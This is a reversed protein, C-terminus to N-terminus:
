RAATAPESVMESFLHGRLQHVFPHETLRYFITQAERRARVLGYARLKALHQSVCSVSLGLLEALDCVCLEQFSDLLYLLKLRTSNSALNFLEAAEELELRVELSERIFDLEERPLMPGICKM